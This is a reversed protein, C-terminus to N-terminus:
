SFRCRQYQTTDCPSVNSRVRNQHYTRGLRLTGVGGIDVQAAVGAVHLLQRARGDDEYAYLSSPRATIAM